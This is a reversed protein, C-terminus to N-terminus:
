GQLKVAAAVAGKPAPAGTLKMVMAEAVDTAMTDLHQLAGERAARIRGEAEAQKVSLQEDLAAKRAAAEAFAKAQADLATRQAVARAEALARKAGEAQENAATQVSRANSLAAAITAAREDFVRRFRPAFVRAILLYLAVFLILLYGIQGAWHQFEFQPLGSSHEASTSAHQNTGATSSEAAREVLTTTATDTEIAM